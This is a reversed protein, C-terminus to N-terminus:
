AAAPITFRFASGRGLTSEVWIRGGHAEVLNRSIYLGLGTGRRDAGGGQWFREFVAEQAEPGIGVGDDVVSFEVANGDRVAGVVITGGRATFKLANSLLNAFVQLVRGHDFVTPGLGDAIECRLDIGKGAAADRFSDVAERVLAAPNCPALTCPLRGADISVVDLLDGLLRNMRAAYLRLREGARAMGERDTPGATTLRSSCLVIGGLLNKLDHSVMGLFDDRNALTEDSHVREVMLNRDTQERELPLLEALARATEERQARLRADAEARERELDLDARDRAKEVRAQERASSDPVQRDALDRAEALVADAKERASDVVDDAARQAATVDVTAQDLDRRERRLSRDTESRKNEVARTHAKRAFSDRGDAHRRLAAARGDAAGRAM